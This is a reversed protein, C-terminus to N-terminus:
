PWWSMFKIEKKSAMLFTKGSGTAMNFLLHIPLTKDPYDTLYYILRSIAEQQYERISFRQNLNKVIYDPLAKYQKLFGLLSVSNLKEVLTQGNAM